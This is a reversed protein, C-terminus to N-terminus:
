EDHADIEPQSRLLDGRAVAQAAVQVLLDRRQDVVVLRAPQVHRTRDDSRLTSLM